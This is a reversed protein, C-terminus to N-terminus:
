SIGFRQVRVVPDWSGMRGDPLFGTNFHTGIPQNFAFMQPDYTRFGVEPSPYIFATSKPYFSTVNGGTDGTNITALSPNSLPAGVFLKPQHDLVFIDRSLYEDRDNTVYLYTAASAVGPPRFAQVGAISPGALVDGTDYYWPNLPPVINFGNGKLPYYHYGGEAASVSIWFDHVFVDARITYETAPSNFDYSGGFNPTSAQLQLQTTKTVWHETTFDIGYFSPPSAPWMDYPGVPGTPMPDLSDEVNLTTRGVANTFSHSLVVRCNARNGSLQVASPNILMAPGTPVSGSELVREIYVDGGLDAVAEAHNHRNEFYTDGSFIRKTAPPGWFLCRLDAWPGPIDPYTIRYGTPTMVKMAYTRAPDPLLVMSCDTLPVDAYPSACIGCDNQGEIPSFQNSCLPLMFDAPVRWQRIQTM